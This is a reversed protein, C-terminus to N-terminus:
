RSPLGQPLQPTTGLQSLIQQAFQDEPNNELWERVIKLLLETRGDSLCYQAYTRFIFDGARNLEWATQIARLAEEKKGELLYLNSLFMWWVPNETSRRVAMELHQRSKEVTQGAERKKGEFQYFDHLLLVARPYYPFKEVTSELHSIAAATDKKKLAYQYLELAIEPSVIMMGVDTDDLTVGPNDFNSFRYNKWLLESTREFDLWQERREPLLRLVMAETELHADLGARASSPVSRSFFLPYKFNNSLVIDEVMFDQVRLLQENTQIPMLYHSIGRRRDWYPYEPRPFKGTMGPLPLSKTVIQSDALYIPVGMHHKLQLIYWDTNLLSLNINRVDKRFGYAEQLAWL